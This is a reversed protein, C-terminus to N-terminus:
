RIARASYHFALGDDRSIGQCSYRTDEWCDFRNSANTLTLVVRGVRSRTFDVTASGNGFRNLSVAHPHPAGDRGVVTVTAKSGRSTDPLNLTVRVRWRGDLSSGPQLSVHRHALHDLEVSRAGTGPSSRTLTFSRTLPANPYRAGESFWHQAQRTVWGFRAFLTRFPTGRDNSMDAVAQLSHMDDAGASGDARQWVQRIVFPQDSGAPGFHESMFRFFVWSGYVVGDLSKGPQRLPSQELYQLNDNVGDYVEDEIWTATGEMLWNDEFADYAFQVAHFFEHAATVKLSELPPAGFQGVAFDDDVVCYASFDWFPYSSDSLNPDDSTCFGYLGDAGVNALYVDLRGNGGDNTSSLDSKPRRYGYDGVESQWVHEFVQATDVVWDPTGSGAGPPADATSDVWHVCVHTTCFPSASSEAVGYGSGDPDSVGDTPRALLAEAKRRPAPGLEDARLALDRLVFTAARPSLTAVEGFRREVAAPEFLSRARELAYRAPAIEGRELAATLDDSPAVAPEVPHPHGAGDRQHTREDASVGAAPVLGVLLLAGAM